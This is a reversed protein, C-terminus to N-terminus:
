VHGMRGILVIGLICTAALAALALNGMRQRRRISRWHRLRAADEPYGHTKAYRHLKHMSYNDPTRRTM